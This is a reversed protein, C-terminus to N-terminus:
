HFANDIRSDFTVPFQDMCKALSFVNTMNDDDQYAKMFGPVDGEKNLLKNGANTIMTKEETAPRINAVYKAEAMTNSGSGSDICIQARMEPDHIHAPDFRQNNVVVQVHSQYSSWVSPGDTDEEQTNSQDDTHSETQQFSVQKKKNNKWWKSKDENKLPSTCDPVKHGKKGCVFCIIEKTQQTFSTANGSAPIREENNNNSHDDHDKKQNGKKQHSTRNDWTHNTLVDTIGIITRPYQDNNMSFQSQM